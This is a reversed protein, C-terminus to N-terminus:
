RVELEFMCHTIGVSATLRVDVHQGALHCDVGAQEQSREGRLSPSGLFPDRKSGRNRQIAGPIPPGGHGASDVLERAIPEKRWERAAGYRRSGTTGTRRSRNAAYHKDYQVTSDM